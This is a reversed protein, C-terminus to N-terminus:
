ITFAYLVYGIFLPISGATFHDNVAPNKHATEPVLTDSVTFLSRMM